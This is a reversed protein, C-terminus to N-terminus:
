KAPYKKDLTANWEAIRAAEAAFLPEANGLIEADIIQDGIAIAMVAEMGETVEGFVAYGGDLHPTKALTIFFQSGATDPQPKRAMSFVGASHHILGPKVELPITYGPGGRGSGDPDGGQIVFGPEVRHFNLGDYYGRKILNLFNAATIPTKSAFITAKIDGKATKLVIEVESVPEIVEAAAEVVPAEEVKPEEATCASVIVALTLVAASRFLLFTKM